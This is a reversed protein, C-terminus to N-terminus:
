TASAISPASCAARELEGPDGKRHFNEMSQEIAFIQDLLRSITQRLKLVETRRPRSEPMLWSIPVLASSKLSRSGGGAAASQGM